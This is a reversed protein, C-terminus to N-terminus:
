WVPLSALEDAFQERQWQRVEASSDGFLVQDKVQPNLALRQLSSLPWVLTHDFSLEAGKRERWGKLARLRKGSCDDWIPRRPPRALKVPGSERGRRLADALEGHAHRLLWGSVGKVSTLQARPHRSLELLTAGSIIKFLPRDYRCSLRERLACLERLVALQSPTLTRHGKVSVFATEPPEPPQFRIGELRGHEERVWALRGLKRLERCLVDRLEILHAVDDGAYRLANEPLPRKGWDMRQLKKQKDIALSLFQHLVNALGLRPAGLFQAAVATDFLGRVHAHYDRDLSRLDYDCSHFVKEVSEDALFARLENGKGLANPEVIFIESKTGFQMLCIREPYSHMGNSELDVAVRKRRALHACLKRWESYSTILKYM